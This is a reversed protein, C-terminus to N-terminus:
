ARSELTTAFVAHLVDSALVVGVTTGDPAVVVFLEHGETAFRRAASRLTSRETLFAGGSTAADLVTLASLRERETAQVCRLVHAPTVIGLPRGREDVAVVVPSAETILRELGRALSAGGPLCTPHRMIAAVPQDLLESSVGPSRLRELLQAVAPAPPNSDISWSERAASSRLEDPWTPMSEM